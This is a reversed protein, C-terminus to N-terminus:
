KTEILFFFMLKKDYFKLFYYFLNIFYELLCLIRWLFRDFVFCFLVFVDLNLVFGRSFKIEESRM